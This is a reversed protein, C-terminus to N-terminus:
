WPFFFGSNNKEQTGQARQISEFPCANIGGRDSVKEVNTTAVYWPMIACFVLAVLLFLLKLIVTRRAPLLARWNGASLHGFHVYVYNIDELLSFTKERGV